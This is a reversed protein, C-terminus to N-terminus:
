VEAEVVRRSCGSAAPLQVLFSVYANEYLRALSCWMSECGLARTLCEVHM